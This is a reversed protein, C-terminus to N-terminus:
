PMIMEFVGIDKPGDPKTTPALVSGISCEGESAMAGGGTTVIPLWFSVALGVAKETAPVIRERPAGAIVTEFVGTDRPGDPRTIPALVTAIGLGLIGETGASTSPLGGDLGEMSDSAPVVMDEPPEPIVIEPIGIEKPADPRTTPVLTTGRDGCGVTVLLGGAPEAGETYETAPVARVWPPEAIVIDPVWIDRAGEPSTTPLLVTAKEGVAVAVLPWTM